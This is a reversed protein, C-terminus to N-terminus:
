KTFIFSTEFDGKYDAILTLRNGSVTFNYETKWENCITLGKLTLTNGSISYTGESDNFSAHPYIEEVKGNSGFHLEFDKYFSTEAGWGTMKSLKWSTNSLADRSSSSGGNHQKIPIDKHMISEGFHGGIRFDYGSSIASLVDGAIRLTLDYQPPIHSNDISWSYTGEVREEYEGDELLAQTTRYYDLSGDEDLVIIEVDDSNYETFKWAGLVDSPLQDPEDDGGCATAFSLMLASVFLALIRIKLKGM